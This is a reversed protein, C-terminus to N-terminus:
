LFQSPEAGDEGILPLPHRTPRWNGGDDLKAFCGNITELPTNTAHHRDPDSWRAKHKNLHATSEPAM